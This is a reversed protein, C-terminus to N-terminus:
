IRRRRKPDNAVVAEIGPAGTVKVNVDVQRAQGDFARKAAEFEAGSTMVGSSGIDVVTARKGGHALERLRGAKDLSAQALEPSVTAYAKARGELAKVARGTATGPERASMMRSDEVGALRDSLGTADDYVRGALVGGVGAVVTGAIGLTGIGGAAAAAGKGAAGGVGGALAGLLGPGFKAAAFIALAAEKNEAMWAIARAIASFAKTVADLNKVLAENFAAKIKAEAQAFKGSASESVTKFDEMLAGTKGVKSAMKDFAESGNQALVLLAQVAEQRGLIEFLKEPSKVKEALEFVIDRMDRMKTKEKDTFVKVGAKKEIEGASKQIASMLSTFGTAAEASTGFGKRLIQMFAGLRAAGEAGVTGFMRFQPTLGALLTAMDRLEVAGMKGQTAMVDFVQLLEEKSVGLNETLAAASSSIDDMNAGTAVAVIGFTDLAEAFDDFRGTLEQFKEAGALLQDQDIGRAQAVRQLEGNFQMMETRSKGANVQLRVLRDNFQKVSRFALGLGAIGGFGAIDGLNSLAGGLSRRLNGAIGRGWRQLRGETGRLSKSLHPADVGIRIRAERDAM